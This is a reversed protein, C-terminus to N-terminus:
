CAGPGYLGDETVVLDVPRDHAERPLRDLLMGRRCLAATRGPCQPLYRDYYGGGQGLRGGARDFALGPALILDIQQPALLPCGEGPELMGYPHPVLRTDRDIRRAELGGGPLCRPLALIKGRELLPPILRATDPEAGMGHYLLITGAEAVWPLALFRAFLARDSDAREAPSLARGKERLARRM